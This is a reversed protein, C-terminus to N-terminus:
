GASEAKVPDMGSALGPIVGDSPIFGAGGRDLEQLIWELEDPEAIITVSDLEASCAPCPATEMTALESLVVGEHAPVAHHDCMGCGLFVRTRNSDSVAGAENVVHYLLLAMWIIYLVFLALLM